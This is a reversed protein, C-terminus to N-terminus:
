DLPGRALLGTRRDHRRFRKTPAIDTFTLPLGSREDLNM